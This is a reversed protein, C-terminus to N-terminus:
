LRFCMFIYGLSLLFLSTLFGLDLKSLPSVM